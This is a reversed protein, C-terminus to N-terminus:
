LEQEQLRKIALAYITMTQLMDEIIIHEDPMHEVKDRGPLVPGFAVCNPIARAYTAGGSSRPEGNLGTVDEFSSRLTEVLTSDESVYLANLCHREHYELGYDRAAAVMVEDFLSKKVTVPMRADIGLVAKEHGICIKAINLTLKGSQADSADGFVSQANPDVGVETVFKLLPHTMGVQRLGQCLRTIANIGQQDCVSAHAGKGLVLICDEDQEYDFGLSDLAEALADAQEGQYSARDPVANFAEGCELTLDLSGECVLNGQILTKEANILPFTSDPTFAAAPLEENLVYRDICRWLTEEDTGFIFRVRHRLTAGSDLLAKVAFIAALLPGKDDQTGRGYVAGDRITATFPDSSWLARAGAPVVDLHGLIGLMQEGEGIEAYGYYGSPDKYTRFGLQECFSLARELCRDIPEGFPAPASGKQNVSAISVWEALEALYHEQHAAIAATLQAIEQNM